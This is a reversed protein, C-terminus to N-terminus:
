ALTYGWKLQFLFDYILRFFMDINKMILQIIANKIYM